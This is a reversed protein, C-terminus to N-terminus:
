VSVYTASANLSTKIRNLRFAEVCTHCYVADEAENYHLFNWTSFWQSQFSCYVVKKQGYARKPFKYSLPQHPEPPIEPLILNAM